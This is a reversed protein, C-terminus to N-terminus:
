GRGIVDLRQEIKAVLDARVADFFSGDAADELAWMEAFLAEREATHPDCENPSPTM